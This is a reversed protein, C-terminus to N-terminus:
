ETRGDKPVKVWDRKRAEAWTTEVAADYDIGADRCFAALRDLVVVCPWDLFQEELYTQTLRGVASSLKLLSVEVSGPIAYSVTPGRALAVSNRECFDMMYITTDGVADVMALRHEGPTGRIGQKAKLVAHFLEGQEEVLGLLPFWKENNPFNYRSWEGVESQLKAFNM